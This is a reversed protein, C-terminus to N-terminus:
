QNTPQHALPCDSSTDSYSGDCHDQHHSQDVQNRMSRITRQEINDSAVQHKYAVETSALPFLGTAESSDQYDGVYWLQLATCPHYLDSLRLRFKECVQQSRKWLNWLGRFAATALQKRRLVDEDDGILSGLKQTWRWEEKNRDNLRTIETYETKDHNM